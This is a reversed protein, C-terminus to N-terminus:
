LAHQRSRLDQQWSRIAEKRLCLGDRFAGACFSLIEKEADWGADWRIGPLPACAERLDWLEARWERSWECRMRRPVLLAAARLLTQDLIRFATAPQITM